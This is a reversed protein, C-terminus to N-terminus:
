SQPTRGAEIKALLALMKHNTELQEEKRKRKQEKRAFKEEARNVSATSVAAHDGETVERIPEVIRVSRVSKPPRYVPFTRHDESAFPSALAQALEFAIDKLQDTGNAVTGLWPVHMRSRTQAQNMAIYVDKTVQTSRHGVFDAM